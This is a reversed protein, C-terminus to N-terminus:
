FCCPPYTRFPVRSSSAPFPSVSRVTAATSFGGWTVKINKCCSIDHRKAINSRKSCCNHKIHPNKASEECCTINKYKVSKEIFNPKSASVKMLDDDELEPSESKKQHIQAQFGIGKQHNQEQPNEVIQHIQEQPNSRKKQNQDKSSAAINQQNQKTSTIASRGTGPSIQEDEREDEREDELDDM